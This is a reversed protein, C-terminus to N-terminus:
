EQEHETEPAQKAGLKMKPQEINNGIELLSDEHKAILDSFEQQTILTKSQMFSGFFADFVEVPVKTPERSQKQRQLQAQVIKLDMVLGSKVDQKKYTDFLENLVSLADATLTHDNVFYFDIDTAGDNPAMVM